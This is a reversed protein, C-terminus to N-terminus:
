RKGGKLGAEVLRRIVKSRTSGEEAAKADLAAIMAAPVRVALVPYPGTGPIRPPRKEIQGM